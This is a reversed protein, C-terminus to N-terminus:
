AYHSSCFSFISYWTSYRKVKRALGYRGVNTGEQLILCFPFCYKSDVIHNYPKRIASSEVGATANIFNNSTLSTIYLEMCERRTDFSKKKRHGEIAKKAFLGLVEPCYTHRIFVELFYYQAKCKDLQM